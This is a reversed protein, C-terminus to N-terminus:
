VRSLAHKRFWVRMCGTVVACGAYVTNSRWRFLGLQEHTRCAHHHSYHHTITPSEITKPETCLVRTWPGYWRATNVPLTSGHGYCSGHVRTTHERASNVRLTIYRGQALLECVHARDRFSNCSSVWIATIHRGRPQSPIRLDAKASDHTM